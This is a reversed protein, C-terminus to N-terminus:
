MLIILLRYEINLNDDLMKLQIMIHNIEAKVNNGTWVKITISWNFWGM